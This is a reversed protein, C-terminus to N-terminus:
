QSNYLKKKRQRYIIYAAASLILISGIALGFILPSRGVQELVPEAGIDFLPAEDEKEKETVSAAEEELEIEPKTTTTPTPASPKTTPEQTPKVTAGTNVETSAFTYAAFSNVLALFCIISLCKRLLLYVQKKKPLKISYNM